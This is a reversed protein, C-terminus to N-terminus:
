LLLTFTDMFTRVGIYTDLEILHVANIHTVTEPTGSLGLWSTPLASLAGYM